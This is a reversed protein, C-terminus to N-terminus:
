RVFFSKRKDILASIDMNFNPSKRKDNYAANLEYIFTDIETAIHHLNQFVENSDQASQKSDLLLRTMGMMSAIPRRIVHSIDFIMQEISVIYDVISTIDHAAGYWLVSGEAGVAPTARLWRWQWEDGFRMRYQLSIPANTRYAHQMATLWRDRDDEHLAAFLKESANGLDDLDLAHNKEDSGRNIFLTRTRGAADIAFMYTNAPVQSTVKQLLEESHKVREAAEQLDARHERADIDVKLMDILMNLLSREEHLFPGEDETPRAELYVVEIELRAGKQTLGDASQKYETPHYNNTTYVNDGVTLRVATIDAYQWGSAVVGVIDNYMQAPQADDNQLIRSVAYLTKLEKIREELNRFTKLTLQEAEKRREIELQMAAMGARLRSTAYYQLALISGFPIIAGIWRSIPTHVVTPAPLHGTTELIALGLDAAITILGVSLGGRNGLLFGATLIVSLQTLIGPASMGGASYCPITIFLWVMTVLSWSAARTYGRHNLILNFVAIFISIVVFTLWRAWLEPFYAFGVSVVSGTVVSWVLTLVYVMHAQFNEQKDPVSLFNAM